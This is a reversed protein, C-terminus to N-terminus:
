RGPAPRRAALAELARGRQGYADALARATLWKRRVEAARREAKDVDSSQRARTELQAETPPQPHDRSLDRLTGMQRSLAARADMEAVSVSSELRAATLAARYYLDAHHALAEGLDARDIVLDAELRSVEVDGDADGALMFSSSKRPIRDRM